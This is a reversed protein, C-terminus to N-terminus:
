EALKPSEVVDDVHISNKTCVPQRMRTAEVIAANLVKFARELTLMTHKVDTM